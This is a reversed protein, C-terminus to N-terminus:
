KNKRSVIVALIIITLVLGGAVGMGIPTMLLELLDGLGAPANVLIPIFKYLEPEPQPPSLYDSVHQAYIDAQVQSVRRDEWVFIAGGVGDSCVKPYLQGNIETCIATGNIDWLVNGLFNIQQAYIDDYNTGARDDMWTIFAGQSEDCCIHINDQIDAANCIVTGNATWYTAGNENVRQAYIDLNGKRHDEWAVIAGGVGDSCIKPWQRYSTENCISTGNAHWLRNGDSDVRQVKIALNDDNWTIIAGRAGDSCIEPYYDYGKTAIALDTIGWTYDGTSNVHQAYVEPIASRWDYWTLIAGQDGDTCIGFFGSCSAQDSVLEGNNAWLCDGTANVRQAYLSGSANLWSIIIGGVGDSCLKPFTQAFSLTCIPIGDSTWLGHGTSNIRQAYIKTNGSRGDQWTIFAGGFGDSLIQPYTQSGSATCIAVGGATWKINGYVDIRRAYIDDNGNRYDDWAIIAGGLGDSCIVPRSQSLNASCIAVPDNGYIFNPTTRTNITSSQSLSSWPLTFITAFSQSAMLITSVTFIQILLLFTAKRNM